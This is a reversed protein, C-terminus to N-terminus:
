RSHATSAGPSLRPGPPGGARTRGPPQQPPQSSGHTYTFHQSDFLPGGKEYTFWYELVTGSSLNSVTQEWTGGNNAMRFNQQNAGNVLYHVDVLASPTNPHFSIKAQTANLATVSQTFDGGPPQQPPGGLSGYVEFEYIRATGGTGSQEANLVNLRVFRGSANVQHTSVGATNGRVQAVTTFSTGNDSVQIDFDRTNMAASEGGAQAHRVMFSTISATGGLDVQLFKSSASSCWKDSNGGSVSGNVAKAPGETSACPASGTAPKNLALNPGNPPPQTGGGGRSWVAVYDVIMPRGPTTSPTPGGGFAAPFEGGMAVNLIIFFGHNTAQDWVAPSVRTQQVTHFLFGDVFFRLEQPSTSRDWELTYTHFNGTCSSGPCAINNGIGVKEGCEGGPSTGCHLTAHNRDRGNVNEMIDMEGIMPWSFRDNRYPAGLMWFAPWYGLAGTGTINPQQIRAEVRLTGGAPPQFDSRQTEIRGSTWNGAGDRQPTIRLNGSGDLSVNATSDTMTEVEGTGFQPPGGPYATGTTYLWNGGNVRSNAAGNFDDLFVQSWGTPPPPAAADATAAVGLSVLLLAAAALIPWRRRLGSIVRATPRM